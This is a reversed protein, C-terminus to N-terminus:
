IITSSASANNGIIQEGINPTLRGFLQGKKIQDEIRIASSTTNKKVWALIWYYVEHEQSITASPRFNPLHTQRRCNLHTKDLLSWFHPVPALLIALSFLLSQVGNLSFDIPM